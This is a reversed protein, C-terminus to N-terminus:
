RDGINRNDLKDACALAHMLCGGLETAAQGYTLSKKTQRWYTVTFRDIGMQKLSIPMGAVEIEFCTVTKM